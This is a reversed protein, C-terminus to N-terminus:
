PVSVWAEKILDAAREAFAYVTAQPNATSITPLASADVVRLNEVRYVKLDSSVVGGKARPLMACTCGIHWMSIVSDRLYDKAAETSSFQSAPNGYRLPLKLIKSFSSASAISEIELMHQALVAMDVPNTLYRPDIVPPVSSDSSQIHVTGRSLPHSLMAGITLFKGPLPGRSPDGLFGASQPTQTPITLYAATPAKSDLLAKEAIKFYALDRASSTDERRSPRNDSLVQEIVKQGDPSRVPLYAYTTVGVHSLPGTRSTGYDEMAQALAEPEQRLLADLTKVSDQVEFCISSVAHDQLNEGVAPLDIVVDIGLSQLLKADGIGSLELLKPSQLAGAALIVEKSAHVEFTSGGHKYKVGSARIPGGTETEDFLVKLAEAKTLVHLNGRDKVPQYYASVSDSREKTEPHISALCSFSGVSPNVFPDSSMQLQKAAFTDAWVRRLTDTHNGPFSTQISGTAASTPIDIGLLKRGEANVPPPSTYAKSFYPQLSEWNWGDNGLAEWSDICSKAPPVFVFANIASSGGLAKGQNLKVTRGRLAPQPRSQFDWDLETGKLTEFLGPTKVRPDENHNSGAEVVLVSHEPNESLRAAVVLGSTGGGVVIFDYSNPSSM